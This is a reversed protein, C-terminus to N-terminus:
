EKNIKITKAFTSDNILFQLKWAFLQIFTGM